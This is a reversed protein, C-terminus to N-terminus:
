LINCVDYYVLGFLHKSYNTRMKLDQMEQLKHRENEINIREEILSKMNNYEENIKETNTDKENADKVRNSYECIQNKYIEIEKSFKEISDLSCNNEKELKSIYSKQNAVEQNSLIIEKKYKQNKKLLKENETELKTIKQIMSQHEDEDTQTQGESMTDYKQKIQSFIKPDIELIKKLLSSTQSIVKEEIGCNTKKEYLKSKISYDFQMVKREYKDRKKFYAEAEKQRKEIPKLKDIVKTVDLSM